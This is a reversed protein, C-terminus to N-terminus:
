LLMNLTNIRFDKIFRKDAYQFVEYLMMEFMYESNRLHEFDGWIKNLDVGVDDDTLIKLIGFLM